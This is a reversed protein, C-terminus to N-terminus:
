KSRPGSNQLIRVWTKHFDTRFKYVSPCQPTPLVGKFKEWWHWCLKIRRSAIMGRRVLTMMMWIITKRREYKDYFGFWNSCTEVSPSIMWSLVLNLLESYKTQSTIVCLIWRRFVSTCNPKTKKIVYKQLYKSLLPPTKTMNMGMHTKWADNNDDLSWVWNKFFLCNKSGVGSHVIFQWCIIAM